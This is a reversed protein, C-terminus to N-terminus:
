WWVLLLSCLLSAIFWQNNRTFCCFMCDIWQVPILSFTSEKHIQILHLFLIIVTFVRKKLNEFYRTFLIYSLYWFFREFFFLQSSNYIVMTSKWCCIEWRKILLHPCIFLWFSLHIIHNQFSDFCFIIRNFILFTVTFIKYKAGSCNILFSHDM